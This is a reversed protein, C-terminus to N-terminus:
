SGADEATAYGSAERDGEIGEILGRIEDEPIRYKELSSNETVLNLVLTSHSAVGVFDAGLDLVREKLEGELSM